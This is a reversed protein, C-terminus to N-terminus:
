FRNVHGCNSPLKGNTRPKNQKKKTKRQCLFATFSILHVM